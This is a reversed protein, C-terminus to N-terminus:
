WSHGISLLFPADLGANDAFINGNSYHVIKFDLNFTKEKGFQLGFGIYDQFIFEKGLNYGPLTDRSMLTPGALSYLFYPNFYNNHLFWVRLELFTSLTYLEASRFEWRGLSGGWYVSFYKETNFVLHQYSLMFGSEFKINGDFFIPSPPVPIDPNLFDENFYGISVQNKKFEFSDHAYCPLLFLLSAILTLIRHSQKKEMLNTSERDM